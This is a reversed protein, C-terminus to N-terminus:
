KDHSKKSKLIKLEESSYQLTPQTQIELPSDYIQVSWNPNKLPKLNGKEDFLQLLFGNSTVAQYPKTQRMHVPNKFDFEKPALKKPDFSATMHWFLHDSPRIFSDNVKVLFVQLGQGDDAMGFIKVSDASNPIKENKECLQITIHDYKVCPYKAPFKEMVKQKAEPTLKYSLYPM